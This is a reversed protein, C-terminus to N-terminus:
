RNSKSIMFHMCRNIGSQILSGAHICGGVNACCKVGLSKCWGAHIYRRVYPSLLYLELSLLVQVFQTLACPM